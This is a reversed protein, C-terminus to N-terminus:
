LRGWFPQPVCNALPPVHLKVTLKEGLWAPVRIPDTVISDVLGPNVGTSTPRVPFPSGAACSTTVGTCSANPETTTPDFLTACSNVTVFGPVPVSVPSNKAAAAGKLMLEPVHPGSSAAPPLQVANTTNAGATPPLWLPVTVTDLVPKPTGGTITATEPVPTNGGASLRLGDATLKGPVVTPFVLAPCVTVTVFEPPSAADPNVTTAEPSKETPEDLQADRAPPVSAAPPLQETTTLKTGETAPPRVPKSVADLVAEPTAFALVLKLPVPRVGATSPIAGACSVNAPVSSPATLAV